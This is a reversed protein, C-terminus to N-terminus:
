NSSELQHLDIPQGAKSGRDKDQQTFWHRQTSLGESLFCPQFTM